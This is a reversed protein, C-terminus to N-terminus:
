AHKPSVTLRKPASKNLLVLLYERKHSPLQTAIIYDFGRDSAWNINDRIYEVHDLNVIKVTVLIGRLFRFDKSIRFVEALSQKPNLNLDVSVWEIDSPIEEPKIHQVPKKIHTFKKNLLCLPSMEAPDNGWVMAKNSLLFYSAGGPASGLELWKQNETISINFLHQAEALKLYARSPSKEPLFIKPDSNPFTACRQDKTHVGIWFEDPKVQVVDYYLENEQNGDIYKDFHECVEKDQVEEDLLSFYHLNFNTFNLINIEQSLLQQKSVKKISKAWRTTFVLEIENLLVDKTTKYTLFRGTSYGPNLYSYGIKIEYKLLDVNGENCCFFIFEGNNIKITM